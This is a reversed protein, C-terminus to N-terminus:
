VIAYLFEIFDCLSLHHTSVVDRSDATSPRNCVDDTASLEDMVDVELTQDHDAVLELINDDM